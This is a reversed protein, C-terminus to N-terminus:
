AFARVIRLGTKELIAQGQESETRGYFAHDGGRNEEYIAYYSPPKHSKPNINYPSPYVYGSAGDYQILHSAALTGTDEHTISAAYAQAMFLAEKTAEGMAGSPQLAAIDQLMADQAEKFGQVTVSYDAM